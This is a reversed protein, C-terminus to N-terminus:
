FCTATSGKGYLGSHRERQFRGAGKKLPVNEADRLKSDPKPSGSKDTVVKGDEVLPREVTIRSYGFDSNNFIKCFKGQRFNGYIETIKLNDDDSLENRKNEM